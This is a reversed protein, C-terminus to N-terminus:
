AMRWVAPSADLDVFDQLRQTRQIRDGVLGCGMGLPGSPLHAPAGHLLMSHTSLPRVVAGVRSKMLRANTEVAANFAPAARASRPTGAHAIDDLDEGVLDM